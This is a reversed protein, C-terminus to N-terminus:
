DGRLTDRCAPLLVREIVRTIDSPDPACGEILVRHFNMAPLIAALTPLDADPGLEGRAQARRLMVLLNESKPKVFRELFLAQLEPDRYLSPLTAALVAPLQDLMPPKSCFLTVLDGRLTGTDPLEGQPGTSKHFLHDVAALVLEPKGQWRRYLTAKSVKVQSALADFTLRDYGVEILLDITGELIEREREGEIRPRTGRDTPTVTM